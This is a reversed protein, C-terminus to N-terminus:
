EQKLPSPLSALQPGTIVSQAGCELQWLETAELGIARACWAFLTRLSACTDVRSLVHPVDLKRVIQAGHLREDFGPALQRLAAKPNRTDEVDDACDSLSTGLM